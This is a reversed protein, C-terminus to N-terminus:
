DEDEDRSRDSRRGEWFPKLKGREKELREIRAKTVQYFYISYGIRADPPEITLWNLCESPTRKPRHLVIAHIAYYGSMPECPAHEWALGWRGPNGNYFTYYLRWPKQTKMFEALNRQDQGWDDGHILYRPGGEPGGAWRNFFMLHHPHVALSEVAGLTLCVVLTRMGWKGLTPTVLTFARAMWVMLFPFLPAIYRIGNQTRGASMVVLLIVPFALLLGDFLLDRGRPRSKMWAALGLLGAAQAGITTKLALCALYFWWWGDSSAEGFLYSLHGGEGHIWQLLLGSIWSSFPVPGFPALGPFVGKGGCLGRTLVEGYSFGYAAWLAFFFGGIGCVAGLAVAAVPNKGRGRAARALATGAVVAAVPAMGLATVKCAAALGLTIGLATTWLPGPRDWLRFAVWIAFCCFATLWGDLTALSGQALITPSFTWLVHTVLAATEGFRRAASWLFLGGIVTLAITAWRAAFLNLRTREVPPRLPDPEKAKGRKIWLSFLEPDALRLGAAIGWKPLAPAECNRDFAFNAGGRTAQTWQHVASGMYTPEDITDSKDWATRLLLTMQACALALSLLLHVRKM